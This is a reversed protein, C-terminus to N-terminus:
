LNEIPEYFKGNRSIIKSSSKIPNARLIETPQWIYNNSEKWVFFLHSGQFANILPFFFNQIFYQHHIAEFNNLSTM